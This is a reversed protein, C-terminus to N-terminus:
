IFVGDVCDNLLLDLGAAFRNGVGLVQATVIQDSIRVRFHASGRGFFRALHHLSEHRTNLPTGRPIQDALGHLLQQSRSPSETVAKYASDYALCTIGNAKGISCIVRRENKKAKNNRDLPPSIKRANTM